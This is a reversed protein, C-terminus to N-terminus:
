VLVNIKGGLSWHMWHKTDGGGQQISASAVLWVAIRDHRDLQFLLSPKVTEYINYMKAINVWVDGKGVSEQSM